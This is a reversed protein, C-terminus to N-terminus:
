RKTFKFKLLHDLLGEYVDDLYLDLQDALRANGENQSLRLENRFALLETNTMDLNHMQRHVFFRVDGKPTETLCAFKSHVEIYRDKNM